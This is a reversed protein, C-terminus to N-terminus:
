SRAVGSGPRICAHARNIMEPRWNEPVFLRTGKFIFNIEVTLEICFTHFVKLDSPIWRSDGMWGVRIQHKLAACTYTYSIAKPQPDLSSKDGVVGARM